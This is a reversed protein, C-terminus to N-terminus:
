SAVALAYLVPVGAPKLSDVGLVEWTQAGITLSCGPRPTGALSYAGLLVLGSARVLVDAAFTFGAGTLSGPPLLVGTCPLDAPTASATGTAPDYTAPGPISLTMASGANRLAALASQAIASYDIM